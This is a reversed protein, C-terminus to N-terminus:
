GKVNRNLKDKIIKREMAHNLKSLMKCLDNLNEFVTLCLSGIDETEPASKQKPSVITLDKGANNLYALSRDQITATM